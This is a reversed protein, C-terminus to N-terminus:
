ITSELNGLVVRRCGLARPSRALDDFTPTAIAVDVVSTAEHVGVKVVKEGCKVHHHIIEQGRPTTCSFAWSDAVGLQDGQGHRLDDQLAGLLTREQPQSSLPEPVQKGVNGALRAVVLPQALERRLDAPHDTVQRPARRREAIAQSQQVGRRHRAALRADRGLAGLQPAPSGVAVTGRM